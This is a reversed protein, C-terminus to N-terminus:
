KSWHMRGRRYGSMEDVGVETDAYTHRRRWAGSECGLTNGFLWFIAVDAMVALSASLEVVLQRISVIKGAM